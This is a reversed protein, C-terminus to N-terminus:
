LHSHPRPARVCLQPVSYFASDDVNTAWRRHRVHPRDKLIPWQRSIQDNASLDLTAAYHLAVDDRAPRVAFADHGTRIVAVRCGQVLGASKEGVPMLVNPVVVRPAALGLSQVLDGAAFESLAEPCNSM